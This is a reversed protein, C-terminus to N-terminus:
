QVPNDSSHSIAACKWKGDVKKYTCFYKAQEKFHGDPGKFESKSYGVDWAMDGSSSVEVYTSGGEISVITPLMVKYFERLKGKGQIQPTNPSQVIVDDAYFDLLKEMNHENEAEFAEDILKKIANKEVEIDVM